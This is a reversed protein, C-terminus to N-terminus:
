GSLAFSLSPREGNDGENEIRDAMVRLALVEVRSIAAEKSTGYCMVGPLEPIEPIWRGDEERDIDIRYHM